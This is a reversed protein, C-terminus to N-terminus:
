NKSRDLMDGYDLLIRQHGAQLRDIEENILERVEEALLEANSHRDVAEKKEDSSLHRSTAMREFKKVRQTIPEVLTKQWRQKLAKYYQKDRLEFNKHDWGVGTVNRIAWRFYDKEEGSLPEGRDFRSTLRSEPAAGGVVSDFVKAYTGGVLLNAFRGGVGSLSVPRGRKEAEAAMHWIELIPSGAFGVLDLSDALTIGTKMTGKKILWKRRAKIEKAEEESVGELGLSLVKEPNAKYANVFERQTSFEDWMPDGGVLNATDQLAEVGGEIARFVLDTASFPSSQAINYSHLVGEDLHGLARYQGFGGWGFTERLKKATERDYMGPSAAYAMHAAASAQAARKARGAQVGADDTWMYPGGSYLESVLGKKIGPLDMAKNLWTYFPSVLAAATSTRLKRSMDPVDFYDFFLKDGSRMAAQAMIDDLKNGPRIKGRSKFKRGRGTGFEFEGPGIKRLTVRKNRGVELELMRGDGMKNLADEILKFGFVGEELKFAEDSYRYVDELLRGPADLGGLVKRASGSIWGNRFARDILGSNQLATIEADVYSTNIKGTRGIAKFVRGKESSVLSPDKQWLKFETVDKIMKPFQTPDGRRLTQLFVNSLVNNKLTTLQRATLNSKGFTNAHMFVDARNVADQAKAFNDMARAAQKNIYVSGETQGSMDRELGEPEIDVQRKADTYRAGLTTEQDRVSSRLDDDVRVFRRAHDYGGKNKKSFDDFRDLRLEINRLKKIFAARDTITIGEKEMIKILEDVGPGPSGETGFLNRGEQLNRVARKLEGPENRLIAPMSGTDLYTHLTRLLETYASIKDVGGANYSTWRRDAGKNKEDVFVKQASKQSRRYAARRATQAVSDAFIKKGTDGALLRKSIENLLNVNAVVNGKSDRFEFDINLPVIDGPKGSEPVVPAQKEEIQREIKDRTLARQRRSMGEGREKLRRVYIEVIDRAAEQRFKKSRLIEPIGDDMSRAINVELDNIFREAEDGGGTVRDALAQIEARGKEGMDLRPTVRYDPPTGALEHTRYPGTKKKRQLEEMLEDPHEGDNMRKRMNAMYAQEEGMMMTPRAAVDPAGGEPRQTITVKETWVRTEIPAREGKYVGWPSRRSAVSVAAEELAARRMQAEVVEPAMPRLSGRKEGIETLTRTLKNMERAVAKASGRSKKRAAVLKPLAIELAEEWAAVQEPTDLEFTKPKKPVRFEDSGKRLGTPLEVTMPEELDVRRSLGRQQMRDNFARIKEAEFFDKEEPLIEIDRLSETGGKRQSFQVNRVTAVPAARPGLSIEGDLITPILAEVANQVINQRANAENITADALAEANKSINSESAAINRRVTDYKDAAASSKIREILPAAIEDLQDLMQNLPAPMKAGSALAGAKLAKGFALADLIVTPGEAQLKAPLDTILAAYSAMIAPPINAGFADSAARSAMFNDIFGRAQQEGRSMPYAGSGYVIFQGLGNILDIVNQKWLNATYMSAFDPDDELLKNLHERQSELEKLVVDARSELRARDEAEKVEPRAFDDVQYTIAKPQGEVGGVMPVYVVFTKDGRERAQQAKRYLEWSHARTIADQKDELWEGTARGAGVAGWVMRGAALGAWGAFDDTLDPTPIIGKAAAIVADRAKMGEPPLAEGRAYQQALDVAPDYAILEKGDVERVTTPGPALEGEAVHRGQVPDRVLGEEKALEVDLGRKIYDAMEGASRTAAGIVGEKRVPLKFPDPDILAAAEKQRAEEDKRRRESERWAMGERERPDAHMVGLSEAETIDITEVPSVGGPSTRGVAPLGPAGLSRLTYERQQEGTPPPSAEMLQQVSQLDEQTLSRQFPSPPLQPQRQQDRRSAAAFEGAVIDDGFAISANLLEDTPIQRSLDAGSGMIDVGTLYLIRERGDELSYGKSQLFKGYELISPM